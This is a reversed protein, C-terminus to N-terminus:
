CGGGIYGSGLLALMEVTRLGCGGLALDEEGRVTSGAWFAFCM